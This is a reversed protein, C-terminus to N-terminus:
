KCIRCRYKIKQLACTITDLGCFILHNPAALYVEADRKQARKLDKQFKTTPRLEYKM